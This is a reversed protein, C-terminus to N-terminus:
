LRRLYAEILPTGVFLAVIGGIALFSGFPLKSRLAARGTVLLALGTAAGALAGVVLAVLMHRWGLFAGILALLNVDGLGMGEEGRLWYWTNILLILVGAGLLLGLLAELFTAPLLPQLALGAAAGPLTLRDPLTLHELDIVALALLLACFLASALARPTAGFALTCGVFSAATAAELLPYRPSIRAGCARCRGRLLLYSVLPLNDWARIAGGCEPCRSRPTVTSEGRPLRHVLVNLYSGVVLGILAAGVLWAAGPTM